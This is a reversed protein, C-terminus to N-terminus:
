KGKGDLQYKRVARRQEALTASFAHSGDGKSVFYLADGYAPHMAAHIAALSPLSIPTPPLGRRTYTNYPTDTRLDSYTIDGDYSKGLGYIVTPDSQLRMGRRLRRVFVGAIRPLESLKGSEKEVISALILSKYPSDLSMHPDREAWAERLHQQMLDYAHRLFTVDSMGRPFKYTDPFFRGEPQEGPHGIRAMIEDGSLGKLTHQLLPDAELRKMLDHFTWGDIVTFSHLIVNGSVLKDLLSATTAHPPVAYEGARVDTSKGELRALWVLDWSQYLVGQQKLAAATASLPKGAEVVVTTQSAPPLPRVFWRWYLFGAAAIALVVVVGAIPALRRM